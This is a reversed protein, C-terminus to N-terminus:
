SLAGEETIEVMRVDRGQLAIRWQRWGRRSLDLDDVGSKAVAAWAVVTTPLFPM